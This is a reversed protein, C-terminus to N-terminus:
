CCSTLYPCTRWGHLRWRARRSLSRNLRTHASQSASIAGKPLDGTVASCVCLDWAPSSHVRHYEGLEGRACGDGHFDFMLLTAVFPIESSSKTLENWM